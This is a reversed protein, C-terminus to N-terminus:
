KKTNVTYLKASKASCGVEGLISTSVACERAEKIAESRRSKDPYNIIVKVLLEITEEM